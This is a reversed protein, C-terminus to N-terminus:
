VDYPNNEGQVTEVWVDSEDEDSDSEHHEEAQHVADAKAVQCLTPYDV